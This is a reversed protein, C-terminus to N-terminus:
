EAALEGARYSSRVLPGAAVADFGLELAEAKLREFEDPPVFREVKLHFPSPQLYQGLTLISTGVARLDDFCAAIETNTEGLGLMLSSKTRISPAFRRFHALVDLSIRYTARRDRVAPTLREVTEVNHGLITPRSSAIRDLAAADGGFDPILAEVTTEPTTDHIAEICRAFHEAGGDPVDDRDVSTLVAHRLGLDRVARALRNPEDSDLPAPQGTTVHCFRCARTCIPGMLLFTATRCGWCESQNPCRASHCVTSLQSRDLLKQVEDFGAQAAIPLSRKLWDPKRLASSAGTSASNQPSSFRHSTGTM